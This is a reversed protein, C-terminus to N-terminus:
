EGAEAIAKELAMIEPGLGKMCVSDYSSILAKAAELLRKNAKELPRKCDCKGTPMHPENHLSCDSYHDFDEMDWGDSRSLSRRKMSPKHTADAKRM